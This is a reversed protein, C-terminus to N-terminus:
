SDWTSPHKKVEHFSFTISAKLHTPQVFIHRKKKKTFKQQNHCFSSFDADIPLKYKNSCMWRIYKSAGAATASSANPWYSNLHPWVSRCSTTQLRSHFNITLSLILFYFGQHSNGNHGSSQHKWLNATIRFAAHELPFGVSANNCRM